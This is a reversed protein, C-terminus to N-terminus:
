IIENIMGISRYLNQRNIFNVVYLFESEFDNVTISTAKYNLFDVKFYQM